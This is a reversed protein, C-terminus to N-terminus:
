MSFTTAFMTILTIENKFYFPMYIDMLISQIYLFKSLNYISLGYYHNCRLFLNPFSSFVEM